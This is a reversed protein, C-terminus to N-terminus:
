SRNRAVTSTDHSVGGWRLRGGRTGSRVQGPEAARDARGRGHERWYGRLNRRQAPYGRRGGRGPQRYGLPHARCAARSRFLGHWSGPSRVRGNGMCAFADSIRITAAVADTLTRLLGGWRGGPQAGKDDKPFGMALCALARDYRSADAALEEARRMLGKLNYCGLDADFLNAEMAADSEQKAAIYTGMRLIIHEADLPQSLVDWAGAKLLSLADNRGLDARALVFIPTNMGISGSKRISEILELGTTDPLHHAVFLVDPSIREVIELGQSATYAKVVAHGGPRLVSELSRATWEDAVFLILPPARKRDRTM